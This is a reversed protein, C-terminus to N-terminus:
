TCLRELSTQHFNQFINHFNKKVGGKWIWVSAGRIQSPIKMTNTDPGLAYWAWYWEMYLSLKKLFLWIKVPKLLYYLDYKFILYYYHCFLPFNQVHNLTFSYNQRIGWYLGMSTLNHTLFDDCFEGGGTEHHTSKVILPKQPVWM